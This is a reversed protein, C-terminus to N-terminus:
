PPPVACSMGPPSSVALGRHITTALEPWLASRKFRCSLPSDPPRSTFSHVLLTGRARDRSRQSTSSVESSPRASGVSFLLTLLHMQIIHLLAPVCLSCRSQRGAPEDFLVESQRGPLGTQRRSQRGVDCHMWLLRPLTRLCVRVLCGFRSAVVLRMRLLTGLKVLAVTLEHQGDLSYSSSRSVLPEPLGLVSRSSLPLLLLPPSSSALHCSSRWRLPSHTEHSTAHRVECAM